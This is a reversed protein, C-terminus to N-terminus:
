ELLIKIDGPTANPFREEIWDKYLQKRHGVHKDNVGCKLVYGEIGAYGGWGVILAGGCEACIEKKAIKLAKDYEMKEM